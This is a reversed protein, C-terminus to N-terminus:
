SFLDENLWAVIVRPVNDLAMGYGLCGGSMLAGSILAAVYAVKKLM